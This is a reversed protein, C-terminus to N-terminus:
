DEWRWAIGHGGPKPNLLAIHVSNEPSLGLPAVPHVPGTPRPQFVQSCSSPVAREHFRVELLYSVPSQSFGAIEEGGTRRTPEVTTRAGRFDVSYHLVQTEGLRLPRALRLEFLKARGAPDRMEREVVCNQLDTLHYKDIDIEDDEPDYFICPSSVGDILAVVVDQTTRVAPRRDEDVIVLESLSMSKFSNRSRALFAEIVEMRTTGSRPGALSAPLPEHIGWAALLALYRAVDLGLAQALLDMSTRRPKTIRGSELGRITRVHLGAMNALHEQTLGYQRRLDRLMEPGTMTAASM